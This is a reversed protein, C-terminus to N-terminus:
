KIFGLAKGQFYSWGRKYGLNEALQYLEAMNKCDSPKRYDVTFSEMHDIEILEVEKVIDADKAEKKQFLFGCHPCEKVDPEVVRFCEPCQKIEVLNQIDSKKKKPELSWERNVDPTGFRNVNGVHDIIVATKGPQFRMCRMSQQIFLGLSQTPRLLIAADCDPVDFGESILDVNCLIKIIGRRFQNITQKREVPPTKADIHKAPIGARCFESAMEQSQKISSCYCIAKGNSLKRYHQIVDGWITNKAFMEEVDAQVYEGRSVKLKSTDVIQPAYYKFPSLNGWEILEGVSPGMILTDNIEGLGGGNLRIPTATVGVCMVDPWYDYIRRYSAAKAHHNEDTIILNPKLERDLHNTVTQVMAIKCLDMNVGWWTFTETIQECLEKRHVIFLVRNKKLTTLRAMEAVMVSKGSGCPAVICPKKFGDRYAQKTRNLLDIQYHRLQNM